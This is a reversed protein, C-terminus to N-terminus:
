TPLPPLENVDQKKAEEMSKFETLYMKRYEEYARKYSSSHLLSDIRKEDDMMATTILTRIHSAVSSGFYKTQEKLWDLQQSTLSVQIKVLKEKELTEANSMLIIYMM